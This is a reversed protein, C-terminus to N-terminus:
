CGNGWEWWFFELCNPGKSLLGTWRLFRWGDPNRREGTSPDTSGNTGFTGTDSETEETTYFDANSGLYNLVALIEDDTKTEIEDTVADMKEQALYADLYGLDELDAFTFNPNLNVYSILAGESNDDQTNMYDGFDEFALTLPDNAISSKQNTSNSKNVSRTFESDSKVIKPNNEDKECGILLTGLIALFLAGNMLKKM